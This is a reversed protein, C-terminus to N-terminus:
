YSGVVAARALVVLHTEPLLALTTPNHAGSALVLTGTEAVGAIARSLGATDGALAAGTDRALDDSWPLAALFPDAGARLRPPLDRARLYGAVAAPIRAAEDVEILDTGQAALFSKFLAVREEGGVNGRAPVLHGGVGALRVQVGARRAAEAGPELKLRARVKALIAARSMAGAEAPPAGM